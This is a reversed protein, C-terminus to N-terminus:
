LTDKPCEINGEIEDYDYAWTAKCRVCEVIEYQYTPPDDEYRAWKVLHGCRIKQNM